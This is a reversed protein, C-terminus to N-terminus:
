FKKCVCTFTDTEEKLLVANGNLDVLVVRTTPTAPYGIEMSKMGRLPVKWFM